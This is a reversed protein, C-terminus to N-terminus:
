RKKRVLVGLGGLALLVMTAPEPVIEGGVISWEDFSVGVGATDIDYSKGTITGAASNSLTIRAVTFTGAGGSVSDFWSADFGTTDITPTGAFGALAPYGAPVAAYTDWELTPFVTFFAPNPETNGGVGDQYLTGSTLTLDMISNTWDTDTTVRMEWTDYGTVSGATVLVFSTSIAANASVAMVLVAVIPLFRKM